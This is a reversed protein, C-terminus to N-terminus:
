YMVDMSCESIKDCPMTMMDVGKGIDSEQISTQEEALPDVIDSSFEIVSNNESVDVANWENTVDSHIVDSGAGNSEDESPEQFAQYCREEFTAANNTEGKLIRLPTHPM